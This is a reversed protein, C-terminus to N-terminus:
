DKLTVEMPVALPLDDLTKGQYHLLLGIARAAVIVMSMEENQWVRATNATDVRIYGYEKGYATIKCYLSSIVGQKKCESMIAGYTKPNLESFRNVNAYGMNGVFDDILSYTVHKFRKQVSLPFIVSHNMRKKTEICIHDFMYYAVLSKFVTSIATSIDEGCATLSNFIGMSLQMLMQKKDREGKLSISAHKEPLYIIFCHRGKTKGRYLAKDAVNIIGNLDSADIPHRSIGVTLTIGLDPLGYDEVGGTHMHTLKNGYGWVEEYDTVNECVMVFEDGGYRGVVGVNKSIEVIANAVQALVADGVLHGYTDNVNKFNDVDMLFLSFKKGNAILASIYDTLARRSLVGTLTDLDNSLDKGIFYECFSLDYNELMRM